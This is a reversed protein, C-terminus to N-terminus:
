IRMQHCLNVESLAYPLVVCDSYTLIAVLSVRAVSDTGGRLVPERHTHTHTHTHTDSFRFHARVETQHVSSSLRDLM